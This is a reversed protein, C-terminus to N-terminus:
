FYSFTDSEQLRVIFFIYLGHLTKTRRVTVLCSQVDTGFMYILVNRPMYQFTLVLFSTFVRALSDDIYLRRSDTRTHIYTHNGLSVNTKSYTYINEKSEIYIDYISCMNLDIVEFLAVATHINYLLHIYVFASFNYMKWFNGLLNANYIFIHTYICM